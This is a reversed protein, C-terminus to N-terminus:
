RRRFGTRIIGGDCHDRDVWRAYMRLRICRIKNEDM